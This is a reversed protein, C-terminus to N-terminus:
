NDEYLYYKLLIVPVKSPSSNIHCYKDEILEYIFDLYLTLYVIILLHNKPVLEYNPIM